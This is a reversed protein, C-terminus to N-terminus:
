FRTILKFDDQRECAKGQPGAFVSKPM